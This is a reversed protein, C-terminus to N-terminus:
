SGAFTVGAGTESGQLKITTVPEVAAQLIALDAIEKVETHSMLGMTWGTDDYTRLSADPFEQKELLSKALRGYPQNRKIVLSGAAFTGEKLKLESELRGVEIGQLRLTNIVWEVRTDDRQGAPIVFGYPASKAGDEIAHLSKKYFNELIVKPHSAALELASLVGTQSYNTNNRLSWEVEQHAPLPRYWERKAARFRDGTGTDVKRKMTNAGGNGYIEYMRLMGNHNSAMFGLYGVSWMDVFAHTWVGPMGYGIMKTMEFNAFWPLEAYLIPDLNPNQPAQGSFTYLFPVSEHLDHVIPPHWELYGKLWQRMTLQSYHLDRNNDHYIYKGWFPPGPLRDDENEESVKYRRYWEVYRDRGDPELVPTMMVILNKRISDFLPGEEAVLRYALEMVMEPPGTEGSHLGSTVHYIPKAADIVRRAEADSLGRPDALRALHAKHTNLAAISQEDAIFASWCPRGEDTPGLDIIKVRKSAKALADFYRRIDGSLTLQKPAGIHHGLIDKPTPIGKALPLHDVLPSSFEPRTTWEKVAQAFGPDMAQQGFAPQSFAAAAIWSLLSKRM